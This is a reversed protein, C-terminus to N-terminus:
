QVKELSSFLPVTQRPEINEVDISAGGSVSRTFTTQIELDNQLRRVYIFGVIANPSGNVGFASFLDACNIMGAGYGPISLRDVQVASQGPISAFISINSLPNAGTNFIAVSTQYRGAELDTPSNVSQLGQFGCSFKSVYIQPSIPQFATRAHTNGSVFFCAATILLRAMM